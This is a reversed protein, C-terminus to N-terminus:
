PVPQDALEATSMAADLVQRVRGALKDPSFPKEIYNVGPDLRGAHVIADRTYGSMYLVPVHPHLISMTQALENGQLSGPLVVDTLLLDITHGGKELCTLAEDGDGADIVVYGLGKLIRKVLERVGSEDEVVLITEHGGATSSKGAPTWRKKSRDDVRPLYIEFTTGTGPESYVFISGGSQKVTGYVTSLGLGTGKGPDKTTFFPEFARSRTVEDMGSGTDSVALMVYPGPVTGPHSRCYKEDLEVNVTEVTLKGGHPMADRANLALNMLVQGMQSADVETLGLDPRLLTVLNIDEGLTRTLLRDTGSVVENLSLVEPQLAQRRSFALIQRTLGAAREAAAKIENVDDRFLGAACESSGLILESYGTIATLLNNFDHAIGGALQGVAEMKQAQRLQEESERLTAEAQKRETIDRTFSFVYERGGSEVYNASIEVPFVEGEKTRHESEFTMSGREKLLGWHGPWKKPGMTPDLDFVSMTLMEEPTYGFRRCSSESAYLVRGDPGLWQVFDAARDVSLQTLRLAEETKKRESIDRVFACSYEEGEYEFSYASFEVPFIEGDKARFQKEFTPSQGQKIDQFHQSWTERPEDVAFDFVSMGLLEARSYGLRSCTSDSVYLVRGTAALRIVYDAAHDLSFQTLRLMGETQKRESTDRAFAFSYEKGDQEMYSASVEVPYLEGSKTRHMSETTLSGAEKLGQWAQRWSEPTFSPDLDFISLSLMEERSYGDRRCSAENAFLIRGEPDIWRILEAAREVSFQTLKLAQEMQERETIDRMVLLRGVGIGGTLGLPSSVVDYTRKDAGQGLSMEFQSDPSEDRLPPVFREGLLEAVPRDTLGSTPLGLMRRAAPNLSVVRGDVDLVLVGDKMKSLVQHRAVPLLGPLLSFLRFRSMSLALAAGTVVFAFPTLDIRGAPTVGSITLINAVWPASVAIVLLGAQRRYLQPYRHVAKLLLFGGLALLAYSYATHVWFWPGHVVALAPFAGTNSLSVQSWLLGHFQNTAALVVTAAPILSLVVVFRPSLRKIAGTHARAFLFWALPLTVIGLYEAKAWVTKVALSPAILELAYLLAWIAAAVMLAVFQPAGPRARWRWGLAALLACSLAAALLAFAYPAVTASWGGFLLGFNM